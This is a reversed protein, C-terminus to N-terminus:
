AIPPGDFFDDRVKSIPLVVLVGGLLADAVRGTEVPGARVLATIRAVLAEFDGAALDAAPRYAYGRAQAIRAIAEFRARAEAANGAALAEWQAMRVPQRADLAEFRRPVRRKYFWRGGREYVGGDGHKGM